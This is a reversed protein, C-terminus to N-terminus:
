RRPAAAATRGAGLKSSQRYKMLAREITLGIWQPGAGPPMLNPHGALAEPASHPFVRTTADRGAVPMFLGSGLSAILLEAQAKEAERIAQAVHRREAAANADPPMAAPKVGGAAAGARAPGPPIAPAGPAPLSRIRHAEPPPHPTLRASRGPTFPRVGAARPAAHPPPPAIEPESAQDDPGAGRAGAVAVGEAPTGGGTVDQFMALLHGDITNGSAQEFALMFGTGALGIPGGFLGGGLLRAGLGIRDGTIARYITSVIPIHQLPNIIDLLDSFSMEKRDAWIDAFKLNPVGPADPDTAVPAPIATPPPLASLTPM